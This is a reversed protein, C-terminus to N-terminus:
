DLPYNKPRQRIFFSNSAIIVGRTKSGTFIIIRFWLRFNLANYPCPLVNNVLIQYISFFSPNRNIALGMAHSEPRITQYKVGITQGGAACWPRIIYIPYQEFEFWFCCYRNVFM